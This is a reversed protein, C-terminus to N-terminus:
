MHFNQDISYTMSATLIKIENQTKLVDEMEVKM